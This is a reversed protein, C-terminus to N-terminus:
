FIWSKYWLYFKVFPFKNLLNVLNLSIKTELFVTAPSRSNTKCRQTEKNKTDWYVNPLFYLFGGILMMILLM